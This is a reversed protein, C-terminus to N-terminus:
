EDDEPVDDTADDNDAGDDADAQQKKKEARERRIDEKERIGAAEEPHETLFRTRSADSDPEDITFEPKIEHQLRLEWAYAKAPHYKWFCGHAVALSPDKTSKEEVRAPFYRRTLHAWDYDKKGEALCLQKWWKAPDKWQPALLPWL